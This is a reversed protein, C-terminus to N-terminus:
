EGSSNRCLSASAREDSVLAEYARQTEILSEMEEVPDVDPVEVYGYEDADPHDPYRIQNFHNVSVVDCKWDQCHGMEQRQYPGGEITRTTEANAINASHLNMKTVLFNVHDCVPAAWVSTSGLLLFGLSLNKKM